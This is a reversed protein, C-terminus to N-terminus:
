NWMEKILEKDLCPTIKEQFDKWGYFEFKNYNISSYDVRCIGHKDNVVGHLGSIKRKTPNIYYKYTKDDFYINVRM